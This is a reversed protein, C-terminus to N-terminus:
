RMVNTVCEHNIIGSMTEDVQNVGRV